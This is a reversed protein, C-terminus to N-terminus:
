EETVRPTLLGLEELDIDTLADEDETLADPDAPPVPMSFNSPMRTSLLGAGKLEEMGPLDRIEELAFHDLFADTTGYTVPRGPTRRRGRMRVWETELLTDLTGKSTEVGRIDEIEARTVPQHYAIIALVELAARSLKRQQVSDRSMLFALDGATRFAWADGVRVLNVGRKAYIEQLDAMAATINVGDPLRAALQRESVPEASAFIIAEAMRVAESLQLREALNEISGLEATEDEPEDDVKFPIVSANARESM